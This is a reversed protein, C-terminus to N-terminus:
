ALSPDSKLVKGDVLKVKEYGVFTLLSDVKTSDFRTFADPGFGWARVLPGVTIDFLGGTMQSIKESVRFVDAFLSDVARVNEETLLRFLHARNYVSLSSDIDLLLLEIPQNILTLKIYFPRIQYVISYTTGQTLGYTNHYVPQRIVAHGILVALWRVCPMDCTFFMIENFKKKL